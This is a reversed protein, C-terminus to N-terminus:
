KMPLELVEIANNHEGASVLTYAFFAWIRLDLDFQSPDLKCRVTCVRCLAFGTERAQAEEELSCGRKEEVDVKKGFSLGSNDTLHCVVDTLIADRGRTRRAGLKPKRTGSPGM